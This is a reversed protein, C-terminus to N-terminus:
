YKPLIKEMIVSITEFWQSNATVTPVGSWDNTAVVILRIDPVVVIFQGGWGNAFFYTHGHASGTWWGFGYGPGYPQANNTTIQFTSAKAIWGGGVIRNGGFMGQDLYLRGIALMDRPTLSLGAAGNQFGQKDTQWSPADIGLPQFLNARAFELTSEGTAITLVVSLVHLAGSNYNFVTGPTHVVPLANTYALQGPANWWSSYEAPNQLENVAFGGSMTLLQRITMNSKVSDIPMNLRRLYDGIRDDESGISGRDIAIGILTATVSKTVSRVDHGSIDADNKFYREGVIASDKFVILARLNRIQGAQECAGTLLSDVADAPPSSPNDKCGSVFLAALIFPVIVARVFKRKM